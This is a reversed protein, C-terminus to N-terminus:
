KYVELANKIAEDAQELVSEDIKMDKEEITKIYSDAIKSIEYDKGAVSKYSKMVEEKIKKSEYDMIPTNPLGKLYAMLKYEYDRLIDEKRKGEPAAELYDETKIIRDALEDFTILLAGDAMSRDESELSKVEIYKKFDESIYPKYKELESYDITRYFEGELNILKYKNEYLYAVEKKLKENKIKDINERRFESEGGDISMLENDEDLESIMGQYVADNKELKMELTDIMEDAGESSIEDINEDILKILADPGPYTESVKRFEEMIEKEREEKSIEDKDQPDEVAVPDEVPAKDDKDVKDDNFCATFTLAMLGLIIIYSFVKKTNM